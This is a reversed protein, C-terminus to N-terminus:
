VILRRNKVAYYCIREWSLRHPIQRSCIGWESLNIKPHQPKGRVIVYDDSHIQGDMIWPHVMPSNCARTGYLVVASPSHSVFVVLSFVFAACSFPTNARKGSLLKKKVEVYSVGHLLYRRSFGISGRSTM